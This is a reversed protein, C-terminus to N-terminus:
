GAETLGVTLQHSLRQELFRPQKNVVVMDIGRLDCGIENRSLEIGIVLPKVSLKRCCIRMFHLHEGVVQLLGVPCCDHWTM